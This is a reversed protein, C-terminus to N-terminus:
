CTTTSGFQPQGYVNPNTRCSQGGPGMTTTGFQPQGYVNPVTRWSGGPGTTTVGFQPQGYVNPTTLYQATAPVATALVVIAAGALALTKTSFKTM